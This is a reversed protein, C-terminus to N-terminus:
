HRKRQFRSAAVLGVVGTGILLATGPIPLSGGPPPAAQSLNITLLGIDTLQGDSVQVQAVYQGVPSGTTDWSFLQTSPDFTPALNNPGLLGVFSWTLPDNNPDTATFTHTVTDGVLANITFDNVIPARNSATNVADFLWDFEVFSGDSNHINGSFAYDAGPQGASNDLYGSTSSGPIFLAGTNPDITFGPPQSVIGNNLAQDYTLTGGNGSVAGLNGAYNVGRVVEPQIASFNFLIPSNANTGDWIIRSNMTWSSAFANRIGHVRCCSGWSINYTGAATLQRTHVQVRKAFRADSQDVTNSIQTMSSGNVRPSANSVADKRWFSTTTVTLLGSSDISPVM